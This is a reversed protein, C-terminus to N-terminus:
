YLGRKTYMGFSSPVIKMKHLARMLDRYMKSLPRSSDLIFDVDIKELELESPHSRQRESLKIYSKGALRVLVFGHERLFKAENLYRCDDVVFDEIGQREYRQMTMHLWRVWINPDSHRAGDGLMQLFTRDRQKDIPRLLIETAFEKLKSAFSLLVLGHRRVLIMALSTKGTGAKGVFAIRLPCM